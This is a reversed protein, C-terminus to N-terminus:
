SRAEEVIRELVQLVVTTDEGEGTATQIINRIRAASDFVTSKPLGLDDAVSRTSGSGMRLLIERERESLQQFVAAAVGRASVQEEPTAAEDEVEFRQDPDDLAIFAPMDLLSFRHAAVEAVDPVTMTGEAAEFLGRLFVLLSERDSAPSRRTSSERWRVIRIGPIAWAKPVLSAPDDSFPLPNDWEALGWFSDRGFRSAGEQWLRFGDEEHLLSGLRRILAGRATARGRDRFFNLITTRLLTEFGVEDRARLMLSDLRRKGLLHDSVFDHAAETVSEEDWRTKGPPPPFGHGRVTEGVLRYVLAVGEDNLEGLAQLHALVGAAEDRRM